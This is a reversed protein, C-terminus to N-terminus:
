NIHSHTEMLLLAVGARCCVTFTVVGSIADNPGGRYSSSTPLPPIPAPPNTFFSTGRLGLFKDYFFPSPRGCTGFYTRVGSGVGNDNVNSCGPNNYAGRSAFGLAHMMEHVGVSFFDSQTTPPLPATIGCQAPIHFSNAFNWV